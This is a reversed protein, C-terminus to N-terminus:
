RGRSVTLAATEDPTAERLPGFEDLLDLWPLSKFGEGFNGNITVLAQMYCWVDEEVEEWTWTMSDDDVVAPHDSPEPDGIDWTRM